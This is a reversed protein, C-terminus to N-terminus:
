RPAGFRDYCARCPQLGRMRVHQLAIPRPSTSTHRSRLHRCDQRAHYRGVKGAVWGYVTVWVAPAGPSKLRVLNDLQQAARDGQRVAPRDEAARLENRTM